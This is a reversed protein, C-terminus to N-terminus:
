ITPSARRWGSVLEMKEAHQGKADRLRRETADFSVILRV